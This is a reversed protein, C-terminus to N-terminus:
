SRSRQNSILRRLGQAVDLWAQDRNPWKSVPRGASPLAQLAGVPSDQWDSPRVIIPVVTASGAQHREVARLMEQSYAFDSALFDPSILLLIIDANELNTDIERDWEQGPLIKKDYWISILHNRQLQVLSIDLRQRYREDKHSYSVFVSRSASPDTHHWSSQYRHGQGRLRPRKRANYDDRSTVRSRRARIIEDEQRLADLLEIELQQTSDFKRVMLGSELLRARFARQRALLKSDHDWLQGRFSSAAVDEDLLFILRELGAESASEFEQEVLSIEPRDRLPSGFRLGILGVYVESTSVRRQIEEVPTDESSLSALASVAEGARTVADMAAREFSRGRPFSRLESTCSIYVARHNALNM